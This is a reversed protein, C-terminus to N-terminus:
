KRWMHRRFHYRTKWYQSERRAWNVIDGGLFLIINLLSAIISVRTIASGTILRFIYAAASLLALYKAKITVLFFLRFGADPNLVAYAFFLSLNIYGNGAYGTIFASIIAGLMGIWYFLNFKVTGWANELQMGIMWYMALSIAVWLINGLSSAIPVFVFTILRWVQGELVLARDLTLMSIISQPMVIDAIYVIATALVIYNMLSSVCFKRLKSQTEFSLNM